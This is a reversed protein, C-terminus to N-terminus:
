LKQGFDLSSLLSFFLDDRGLAPGGFQSARPLQRTQGSSLAARCPPHVGGGAMKLLAKTSYFKKIIKFRKM